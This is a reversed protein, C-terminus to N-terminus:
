RKFEKEWFDCERCCHRNVTVKLIVRIWTWFGPRHRNFQRFPKQMTQRTMNGYGKDTM